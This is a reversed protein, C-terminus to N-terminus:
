IRLGLDQKSNFTFFIVASVIAAIFCWVSAFTYVNSLYAGLPFSALFVPALLWRIKINRTLFLPAIIACLYFYRITDRLYPLDHRYALAACGQQNCNVQLVLPSYWTFSWLLYGSVIVGLTLPLLMLRRISSQEYKYMALPMYVPWGSLAIFAFFYMATHQISEPVVGTVGLWVLGESFQHASFIFPILAFAQQHSAVARYRQIALGGLLLGGSVAFSASASVCM